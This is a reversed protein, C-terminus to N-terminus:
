DADDGWIEVFRVDDPMRRFGEDDVDSIDAEDGNPEDPPIPYWPEATESRCM